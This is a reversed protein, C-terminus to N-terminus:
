LRSVIPHLISIRYLSSAFANNLAPLIHMCLGVHFAAGEEIKSFRSLSYVLLCCPTFLYVYYTLKIYNIYVTMGSIM